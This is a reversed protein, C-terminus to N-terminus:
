SSSIRQIPNPSFSIWADRFAMRPHFSRRNSICRRGTSDLDPFEKLVANRLNNFHTKCSQMMEWVTSDSLIAFETPNLSFSKPFLNDFTQDPDRILEDLFFNVIKGVLLAPTLRKEQFKKPLYLRVDGGSEQYCEAIMSIDILYDPEIVIMRPSYSGDRDVEIDIASLSLPFGCLDLAQLVNDKFLESRGTDGYKLAIAGEATDAASTWLIDKSRDCDYAVLRAHRKFEGSKGPPRPINPAAHGILTETPCSMPIHLIESAIEHIAYAGTVWIMTPDADSDFTGKRILQEAQIRFWQLARTRRASIHSRTCLHTIRAFLTTFHLPEDEGAKIFFHSVVSYVQTIREADSLDAHAATQLAQELYHFFEEPAKM